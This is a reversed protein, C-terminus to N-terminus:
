ATFSRIRNLLDTTGKAYTGKRSEWVTKWDKQDRIGNRFDFFPSEDHYDATDWM